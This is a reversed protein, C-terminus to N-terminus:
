SSQRRSLWSRCWPASEERDRADEGRRSNVVVRQGLPQALQREQVLAQLDREGVLAVGIRFGALGLTGLELVVAADRLEDLVEIAALLNQM